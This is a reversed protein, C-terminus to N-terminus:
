FLPYIMTGYEILVVFFFLFPQIAFESRGIGDPVTMPPPSGDLLLMPPSSFLGSSEKNVEPQM